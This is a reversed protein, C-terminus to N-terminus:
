HKSVKPLGAVMCDQRYDVSLLSCNQSTYHFEFIDCSKEKCYEQCEKATEKKASEYIHKNKTKCSGM